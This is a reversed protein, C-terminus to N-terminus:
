LWYTNKGFRSGCILYDRDTAADEQRFFFRQLSHISGFDYASFADRGKPVSGDGEARDADEVLV